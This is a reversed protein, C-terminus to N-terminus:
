GRVLLFGTGHLIWGIGAFIALLKGIEEWTTPTPDTPPAFASAVYAIALVGALVIPVVLFLVEKQGKSLKIKQSKKYEIYEKGTMHVKIETM